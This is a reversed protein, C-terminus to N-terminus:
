WETWGRVNWGLCGRIGDLSGRGNDAVVVTSSKQIRFVEGKGACDAADRQVEDTVVVATTAIAVSVEHAMAASPGM